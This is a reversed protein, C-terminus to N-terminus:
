LGLLVGPTFLLSYGRVHEAKTLAVHGLRPEPRVGHTATTDAAATHQADAAFGAAFHQANDALAARDEPASDSLLDDLTAPATAVPAKAASPDAHAHTAIGAIFLVLLHARM